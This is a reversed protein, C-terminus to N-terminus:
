AGDVQLAAVPDDSSYLLLIGDLILSNAIVLAGSQNWECACHCFYNLLIFNLNFIITSKLSGTQSLSDITLLLRGMAVM